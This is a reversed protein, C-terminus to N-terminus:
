ANDKTLPGTRENYLAMLTQALKAADHRALNDHDVLETAYVRPDRGDGDEVRVWQVQGEFEGDYCSNCVIVDVLEFGILDELAHIHEGSAYKDTEGPQTAINTVFM